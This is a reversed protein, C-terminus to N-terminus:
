QAHVAEMLALHHKAKKLDSIKSQGYGTAEGIDTQKMAFDQDNAILSIFAEKDTALIRAPANDHYPSRTLV